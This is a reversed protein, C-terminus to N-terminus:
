PWRPHQGTILAGLFRAACCCKCGMADPAARQRRAPQAAPWFYMSISAKSARRKANGGVGVGNGIPAPTSSFSYKQGDESGALRLWASASSSWTRAATKVRLPVLYPQWVMATNGHQRAVAVIHAHRSRLARPWLAATLGLALTSIPTARTEQDGHVPVAVGMCSHASRRGHMSTPQLGDALQLNHSSGLGLNAAPLAHVGILVRRVVLHPMPPWRVAGLSGHMTSSSWRPWKRTHQRHM